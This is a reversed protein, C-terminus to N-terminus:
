ALGTTGVTLLREAETQLNMSANMDRDHTTGCEPCTWIRVSLDKVAKNRYGCSSCLQSSPFNRAVKVVTKGYWDAKYELMARFLGWSAESIAKSLKKNKVMGKLHLDEIGIVDHNKVIDTSLKHLYDECRNRIKEHLLSIKRKQKQYNKADSLKRGEKKAREKRRSLIRQEKALKKELSRFFKPNDYVTGDSLIAFDKLGLDIGVSSGTKELPAIDVECLISVFHKNAANRRVTANIIRGEVERSKAFKVWDLKPLKIKNGGVEINGNTHKTKYSQVPNKKSKFRPHKSEGKFFRTYADQLNEISAQLAIADPEKLWSLEKKLSPLQSSCISRTLGKGTTKYATEWEHLFHNFIYRSCGITKAIQEKQANDPYIRFKYAKHQLM